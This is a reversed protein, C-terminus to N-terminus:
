PLASNVIRVLEAHRDQIRFISVPAPIPDGLRDFSLAGLLGDATRTALVARGVAARRGGGSAIADLLIEAAEAAYVAYPHPSTGVSREFDAVFRRGARPLREAPLGSVALYTRASPAGVETALQAAPGLGQALVIPGAPTRHRAEALEAATRQSLLGGVYAADVHGRGLPRLGLRRAASVFAARYADGRATGDSLGAVTRAGRDHVFTAAAAAEEEDSASLRAIRARDSSTLDSATNLPSVLVLGARGLYPLEVRACGSDLTGIVGVVHAARGYARANRRCREASWTGAPGSDDCAVYGVSEGGARFERRKL